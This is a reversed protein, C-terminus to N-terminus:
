QLPVHANIDAIQLLGDEISLPADTRSRKFLKILIQTRENVEAEAGRDFRRGVGGDRIQGFWGEGWRFAYGSEGRVSPRGAIPYDVELGVSIFSLFSALASQSVESASGRSRLTRLREDLPLSLLQSILHSCHCFCHGM